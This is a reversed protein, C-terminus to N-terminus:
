YPTTIEYNSLDIYNSKPAIDKGFTLALSDACDPSSEMDIKRQLKLRQKSDFSYERTTLESELDSDQVIDAHQLWDKMKQWMEDGLLSCRDKYQDSTKGGFNIEFVELGMQRLRDIVGGGVGGGDVFIAESKYKMAAQYVYDAFKMIDAENYKLINHLKRGQRISIVSKDKGQRAVDVGLIIPFTEYVSKNLLRNSAESVVRSSIFQSSSQSPFRGYVRVAVHDSDAGYYELWEKILGKNSKRSERADVYFTKWLNKYKHFCDYFNGSAQNPNGFKIFIFKNTASCGELAEAISNPLGSAEDVIILVNKEHIGQVASPKSEDWVVPHAYWKDPDSKFYYKKALWEFWHNNILLDHWKRLERWTRTKIQDATNATVIIQPSEHTSIFWQVIWSTLATKGTSTGSSVAFRIPDDNKKDKCAKGLDQLFKKQWVDICEGELDTGKEGWPYAFRTFGLPDNYFGVIHDALQNEIDKSM